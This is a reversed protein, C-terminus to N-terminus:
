GWDPRSEVAWPADARPVSAFLLGFAGVPRSELDSLRCCVRLKAFTTKNKCTMELRIRAREQVAMFDFKIFARDPISSSDRGTPAEQNGITMEGLAVLRDTPAGGQAISDRGMPATGKCSSVSVLAWKQNARKRM